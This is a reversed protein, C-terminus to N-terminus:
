EEAVLDSEQAMREQVGLVAKIRYQREGSDSVYQRVIKYVGSADATARSFRVKQGVKYPQKLSAGRTLPPKERPKKRTRLPRSATMAFLKM